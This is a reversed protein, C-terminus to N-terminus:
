GGVLDLNRDRRRRERLRRMCALERRRRELEREQPDAPLPVRKFTTAPVYSKDARMTARQATLMHIRHVTADLEPWTERIQASLTNRWGSLRHPLEISASGRPTRVIHSDIEDRLRHYARGQRRWAVQRAASLKVAETAAVYGDSYSLGEGPIENSM